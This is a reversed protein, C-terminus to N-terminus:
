EAEDIYMNLACHSHMFFHETLVMLCDRIIHVTFHMSLSRASSFWVCWTWKRDERGWYAGRQSRSSPPQGEFSMAGRQCEDAAQRQALERGPWSVDQQM